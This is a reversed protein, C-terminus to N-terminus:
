RRRALRNSPSSASPRSSNSSRMRDRLRTGGGAPVFVTGVDPCQELIELGVTGQGIVIQKHDFPPVITLGARPSGERRAGPTATVHHGGHDSRRWVVQLWRDENSAGDDADRDGRARRTEARGAGRSPRSQRVSYTIVGRELQEKPLQSIMNYAGRIKFAGMPQLNECKLFLTQPSSPTLAQFAVEILPTYVAAPRIRERAAKIEDVTVCDIAAPPSFDRGVKPSSCVSGRRQIEADATSQRDALRTARAPAHRESRRRLGLVSRIRREAPPLGQRQIRGAKESRRRTRGTFQQPESLSLAPVGAKAFPFHDSRFFYGREPHQDSGLTRNREKLLADITAGLTSRESGLQVMDTTAGLYNVGDININAAVKDM